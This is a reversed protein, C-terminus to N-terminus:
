ANCQSRQHNKGFACLGRALPQRIHGSIEHKEFHRQVIDLRPGFQTERLQKTGNWKKGVRGEAFINRTCGYCIYIYINFGFQALLRATKVTTLRQMEERPLTGLDMKSIEPWNSRLLLRKPSPCGYKMLWFSVSYVEAFFCSRLLFSYVMCAHCIHTWKSSAVWCIRQQLWQWRFYSYLLSQRPQEVIYFAHQSLILLCILTM